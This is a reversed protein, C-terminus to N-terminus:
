KDLAKATGFLVKIDPRMLYWIVWVNLGINFVQIVINGSKSDTLMAFVGIPISILYIIRTVLNAWPMKRWLGYVAPFGAVGMSFFLLGLMLVRNDAAGKFVPGYGGLLHVLSIVVTYIMIFVLPVPLKEKQQM